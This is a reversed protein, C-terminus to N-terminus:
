PTRTLDVLYTRGPGDSGDPQPQPQWDYAARLGDGSLAVTGATGGDPTGLSRRSGTATDYVQALGDATYGFLRGDASFPGQGVLGGVAPYGEVVLRTAGTSTATLHVSGDAWRTAVWRGDPSLAVASPDAGAPFGAGLWRTSGAAVDRVFLDVEGDDADDGPGAALDRAYSTFAVLGGDADVDANVAGVGRSPSGDPRVTVQTVGGTVLDRLYVDNNTGTSGRVLDTGSSTFVVHQGDDSLTAMGVQGDRGSALTTVGAAVDRVFADSRTDDDATALPSNSTFSVRAGDRSVVPNLGYNGAAIRGDPRRSLLVVEGTLVDKRVVRRHLVGQADESSAIYAAWRGSGSLSPHSESAGGAPALLRPAGVATVPGSAAAAVAPPPAGFSLLTTSLLVPVALRTHM